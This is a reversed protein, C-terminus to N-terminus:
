LARRKQKFLFFLALTIFPISLWQATTLGAHHPFDKLFELFFRSILYLFLFLFFLTGHFLGEGQGRGCPSLSSLSSPSKKERRERSPLPGATPPPSPAWKRKIFLLILATILLAGAEYLQVPHRPLSYGQFLIGWPLTTPLGVIEANFFNAIRVLTGGLAIPFAGLVAM